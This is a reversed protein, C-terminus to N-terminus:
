EKPSNGILRTYDAEDLCYTERPLCELFTADVSVQCYAGNAQWVALSLRETFEEESEGGCLNGDASATLADDQDYWDNFGWLSAAADRVANAKEPRYGSIEVTMEYSRSM